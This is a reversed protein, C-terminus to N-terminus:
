RKKKEVADIKRTNEKLWSKFIEYAEEFPIWKLGEEVIPKANRGDIILEIPLEM